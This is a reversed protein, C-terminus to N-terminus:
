PTRSPNSIPTPSFAACKSEDGTAFLFEDFGSGVFAVSFTEDATRATIASSHASGYVNTGRLHDTAPHWSSGAKVRRVLTWGDCIQGVVPCM